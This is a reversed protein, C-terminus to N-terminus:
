SPLQFSKMSEVISVPRMWNYFIEGLIGEGLILDTEQLSCRIFKGDLELLGKAEGRSKLRNAEKTTIFSTNVGNRKCLDIFRQPNFFFMLRKRGMLLDLLYKDPIPRVLIPHLIVSSFGERWDRLKITKLVGVLEDSVPPEHLADPNIYRHYIFLRIDFDALVALESCKTNIVGAVLCEDIEDVCYEDKESSELLQIVKSTYDEPITENACIIFKEDEKAPNNYIGPEAHMLKLNEILAHQQRFYREMQKIGKRGYKDFFDLYQSQQRSQITELMEDNVKGSKAEIFDLKLINEPEKFGIRLLDGISCFRCFDLPVVFDEPEQNAQNVYDLLLDINQETLAGYKPGKFVKKVKSRDWGVAIWVFTNFSLELLLKWYKLQGIKEKLSDGRPVTLRTLRRVQKEIALIQSILIGLAQKYAVHCERVFNPFDTRIKEMTSYEPLDTVSHTLLRRCELLTDEIQNADIREAM